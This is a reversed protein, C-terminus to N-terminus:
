VLRRILERDLTEWQAVEVVTIIHIVKKFTKVCVTILERNSIKLIKRICDIFINSYFIPQTYNTPIIKIIIILQIDEM